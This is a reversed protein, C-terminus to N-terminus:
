WDPESTLLRPGLIFESGAGAMGWHCLALAIVCDDHGGPPAATRSGGSPLVTHEFAALEKLTQEHPVIALHEQEIALALRDILMRKRPATLVVPEVPLGSLRLQEVVADGVGTADAFITAGGFRRSIEGIRAVQSRWPVGKLRDCFVGACADVRGVWIVTFDHYRALDVGLVYTAAPAAKQEPPARAIRDLGRFVAGEGPLFEALIEQRYTREPMGQRLGALAEANLLPNASSAHRFSRWGERGGPQGWEFMRQFLGGGKPAGFIFWQAPSELAMPLLTHYYLREDRLITGAENLWFYDYAFGELREGQGLSAFDCWAGSAFRLVRLHSNWRYDTGALRPLFYRQVYREINRLATDLWLHRSNAQRHAIEILRHAAGMTAGARRGKVYVVNRATSDFVPPQHPLFTVKIKRKM